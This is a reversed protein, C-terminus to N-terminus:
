KNEEIYENIKKELHGEGLIYLHINHFEERLNNVLSLLRDYGKQETLRGVTILNIKDTNYDVTHIEGNSLEKIQDTEVTNYKVVHHSNLETAKEFAVKATRSVYVSTDYKRYCKLFENYNRYSKVLQEKTMEIHVWNIKKTINSEIGSIIRTTPGELYSIAIDY